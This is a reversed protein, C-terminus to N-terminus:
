TKKIECIFWSNQELLSNKWLDLREIRELRLSLQSLLLMIQEKDFFSYCYGNYNGAREDLLYTNHDLPEGLGYFWNDKTRFNLFLSGDYELLSMLSNLDSQVDSFKSHCILGWAIVVNFKFTFEYDRYDGLWLRSIQDQNPLISSTSAIAEKTYELGYTEYGLDNLLKIHRGSGFGIDIAKQNTTAQNAIRQMLFAVLREDPYYIRNASVHSASTKHTSKDPNSNLKM